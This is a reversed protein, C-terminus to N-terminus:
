DEDFEWLLERVMRELAPNLPLDQPYITIPRIGEGNNIRIPEMENVELGEWAPPILPPNELPAGEDSDSDHEAHEIHQVSPRDSDDSPPDAAFRDSFPDSPTSPHFSADVDGNNHSENDNDVPIQDLMAWYDESIIPPTNASNLRVNGLLGLGVTPSATGDGAIQSSTPSQYEETDSLSMLAIDSIGPIPSQNETLGGECTPEPCGKDDFVSRTISQREEFDSVSFQPTETTGVPIGVPSRPLLPSETFGRSTPTAFGDDAELSNIVSQREAGDSASFQVTVNGGGPASPDSSPAVSETEALHSREADSPIEDDEKEGSFRIEMVTPPLDRHAGSPVCRTLGEDLLPMDPDEVMAGNRLMHDLLAAWNTGFQGELADILEKKCDEMHAEVRAILGKCETDSVAKRTARARLIESVRTRDGQFQKLQDFLDLTNSRLRPIFCGTLPGHGVVIPNLINSM